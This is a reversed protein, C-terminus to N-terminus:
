RGHRVEKGVALAQRRRADALFRLLRVRRDVVLQSFRMAFRDAASPSMLRRHLALADVPALRAFAAGLEQERRKFAVEITEGCRAPSDLIAM